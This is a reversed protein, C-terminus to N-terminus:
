VPEPPLEANLVSRSKAAAAPQWAELTEWNSFPTRGAKTASMRSHIENRSRPRRVPRFAVWFSSDPSM